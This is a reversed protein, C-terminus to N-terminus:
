LKSHIRLTSKPTRPRSCTWSLSPRSISSERRWVRCNRSRVVTHTRRISGASQELPGRAAGRTGNPADYTLSIRFTGGERGDFAHAHSTMGNPVMWKAVARADLLARYVMARPANVHQTVRTSSM